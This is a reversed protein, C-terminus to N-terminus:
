SKRPPPTSFRSSDDTGNATGGGFPAGIDRPDPGKQEAAAEGTSAPLARDREERTVPMDKSYSAPTGEPAAAPTNNRPTNM